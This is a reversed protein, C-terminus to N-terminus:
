MDRKFVRNYLAWAVSKTPRMFGEDGFHRRFAAQTTAGTMLWLSARQVDEMRTMINRYSRPVDDIHEIVEGIIRAQRVMLDPPVGHTDALRELMSREVVADFQSAVLAADHEARGQETQGFNRELYPRVHESTLKLPLAGEALAEFLVDRIVDRLRRVSKLSTERVAEAIDAKAQRSLGRCGELELDEATAAFFHDVLEWIDEEREHLPKLHIATAPRPEVSGAEPESRRVALILADDSRDRILRTVSSRRRSELAGFRDLVLTGGRAREIADPLAGGLGSDVQCDYTMLPGTRDLLDCAVVHAAEVLM